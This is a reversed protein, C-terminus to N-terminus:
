HERYPFMTVMAFRRAKGDHPTASLMILTDSRNSLLKALKSRLSSGHGREAVNHAEDVVIIDLAIYLNHDTPPKRRLLSEMYLLSAKYFSSNDQVLKTDLPDLIDIREEIETLFIAEKDRVLWEADRVLVRAGPAFTVEDSKMSLQECRSADYESGVLPSLM